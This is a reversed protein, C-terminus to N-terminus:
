KIEIADGTKHEEIQFRLFNHIASLAEGNATKIRVRGGKETEEFTYKIETKLQDMVDAGPPRRGHIASPKNFDGQSFAQAIHALHQRIRNLTDADQPDNVEVEIAGGDRLLRFHHRTKAQSFGMAHDGRMNMAAMEDAPSNTKEVPTKSKDQMLPCKMGSKEEQHQTQHRSQPQQPRIAAVAALILVLIGSLYGIAKIKM